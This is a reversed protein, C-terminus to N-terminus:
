EDIDIDNLPSDSSALPMKVVRSDSSGIYVSGTNPTYEPIAPLANCSKDCLKCRPSFGGEHKFFSIEASCCSSLLDYTSM